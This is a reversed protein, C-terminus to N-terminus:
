SLKKANNIRAKLYNKLYSIVDADYVDCLGDFKKKYDNRILDLLYNRFKQDEILEIKKVRQNFLNLVSVIYTRKNDSFTQIEDTLFGLMKYKESSGILTNNMGTM